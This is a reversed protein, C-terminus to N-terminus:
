LLAACGDQIVRRQDAVQVDTGFRGSLRRVKFDMLGTRPQARRLRDGRRM